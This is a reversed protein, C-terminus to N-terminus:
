KGNKLNRKVFDDLWGILGNLKEDFEKMALEHQAQWDVRQREQEVLYQAQEAMWEDLVDIRATQRREIESIVIMSDELKRHATDLARLRKEHDHLVPDFPAM